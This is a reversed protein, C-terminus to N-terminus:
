RPRTSAPASTPWASCRRARDAQPRDGSALACEALRVPESVDAVSDPALVCAWATLFDAQSSGGKGHRELLTSCVTRYRQVDGAHLRLLAHLCWVEVDPIGAAVSRALDTDADRWRQREAQALGRQALLLPDGQRSPLLRDLHWVAATWQEGRLYEEVSGQHWAAVEAASSTFSEPYRKSLTRFDQQLQEPGMPMTGAELDIRQSALLRTLDRLDEIPRDDHSLEWSTETRDPWTTILRLDDDSFKVQRIGWPHRFPPTLAEGTRGDWVRATGDKCATALRHDDSSFAGHIVTGNHWLPPLLLEGNVSDWIRAANDEGTTLVRRGSTDFAAFTVRSAHAMPKGIREGTQSSWLLGTHDASATVIRLGDPSFAATLIAARHGALNSCLPAGSKSDRVEVSFKSGARLVAKGDLSTGLLQGPGEVVSASKETLPIATSGGLEIPLSSMRHQRGPRQIVTGRAGTPAVWVRIVGDDAGAVVHRGDPCWAAQNVTGNHRLPPSVPKGTLANWVRASNDDSATVVRCGDPSFAAHLVSSRHKMRYTQVEGAPLLWIRATGDESATVVRQGDPSFAAHNVAQDHRLPPGYTLGTSVTWAQATGDASATVLRRGDASFSARAVAGRHLFVQPLAEGSSVDWLRARGDSGATVLLRGDPSFAIDKIAKAHTLTAVLKGSPIAWLLAQGDSGATALVSGDSNFSIDTLGTHHLPPSVAKGTSRDWVRAIGAQNATALRKGDASFFARILSGADIHLASAPDAGFTWLGAGDDGASLVSKGDPSVEVTRVAGQHASLEVLKPCQTLVSAIRLRHASERDPRGEDLRLAETFYVLAAFGDDEDMRHVGNVVHVRVLNRRNEETEIEARDLARQLRANTIVGGLVLVLGALCTVGILAAAAPYRRVWKYTREWWSIPRARIPEDDLFRQLDDALDAASAYRKGQEKRLCKLCITELDRPVKPALCTPRVPEDAVVQCVTEMPNAGPVATPRHANRLLDRGARLCGDDTWHFANAGRSAGAAMYSPTGLVAGTVSLASDHDLQKALGFDTIKPIASHLDFNASQSPVTPQEASQSKCDASPLRSLLINGPKLDRHVIGALHAAHVARALIAMFEAAPRPPQPTGALKGALTGGDVYELSLYATGQYEDVEHVQVINPHTLRGIAEAEARFRAIEDACAHAGSLIMKLAVIRNLKIQRARYVVGMGGRGIEELLEYGPIGPRDAVGNSEPESVPVEGFDWTSVDVMHPPLTAAETAPTAIPAGCLTSAESPPRANVSMGCVPCTPESRAAQEIPPQWQHGRSCTLLM